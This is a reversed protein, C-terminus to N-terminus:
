ALGRAALAQRHEGQPLERAVGPGHDPSQHERHDDEGRKAGSRAGNSGTVSDGTSDEMDGDDVWQIPM